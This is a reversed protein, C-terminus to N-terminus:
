YRAPKAAMTTYLLTRLTYDKKTPLLDSGRDGNLYHYTPGYAVNGGAMRSIFYNVDANVLPRGLKKPAWSLPKTVGDFVGYFAVSAVFEKWTEDWNEGSSGVDGWDWGDRWGGGAAIKGGVLKGADMVVVDGVAFFASGISYEAIKAVLSALIKKAITQEVFKEVLKAKIRNVAIDYAFGAQWPFTSLFLFSMITSLLLTYYVRQAEDVVEAFQECADGIGACYAALKDVDGMAPPPPFYRRWFEGFVNVSEGANNLVIALAAADGYQGWERIDKALGSWVEAAQRAKDPDGEPYEVSLLNYVALAINGGYFLGGRFNASVAWWCFTAHPESASMESHNM